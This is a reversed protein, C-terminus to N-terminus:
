TKMRKRLNNKLLIKSKIKSTNKLFIILFVM